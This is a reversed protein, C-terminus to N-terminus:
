RPAQSPDCPPGFQACRGDEIRECVHHRERELDLMCAGEPACPEGFELCRGAGAQACRRYEGRRRDFMCLDEPECVPGYRVCTGAAAYACAHYRDAGAHYACVRPGCDGSEARSTRAVDSADAADEGRDVAGPSEVTSRSSSCGAVLLASALAVRLAVLMAPGAYIPDGRGVVASEAM